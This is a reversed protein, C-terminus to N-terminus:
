RAEIMAACEREFRAAADGTALRATTAMFQRIPLVISRVTTVSIFLLLLLVAGSITAILARAWTAFDTSTQHTYIRAGLVHAPASMSVAQITSTLTAATPPLTAIPIKPAQVTLSQETAGRALNAAINASREFTSLAV